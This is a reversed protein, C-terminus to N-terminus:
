AIQRCNWNRATWRISITPYRWDIPVHIRFWHKRRSLGLSLRDRGAYSFRDMKFPGATEGQQKEIERNLRQCVGSRKGVITGSRECRPLDFILAHEPRVGKCCYAAARFLNERFREPSSTSASLSGGISCTKIVRKRYPRDTITRLWGRWMRGIQLELPCALLLHLHSGKTPGNERVWAWLIKRGKRRAWDSVLNVVAGTAAAAQDDPIGASEWHITVFRTFPEGLQHSLDAAHLISQAAEFSLYENTRQASLRPGGHQSTSSM